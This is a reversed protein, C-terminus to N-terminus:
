EIERISHFYHFPCGIVYLADKENFMIYMGKYVKVNKVRKLM